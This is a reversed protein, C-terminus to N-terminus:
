PRPMKVQQLLRPFNVADNDASGAFAYVLHTLQTAPAEASAYNRSAPWSRFYGVLTQKNMLRFFLCRVKRRNKGDIRECEPGSASGFRFLATIPVRVVL